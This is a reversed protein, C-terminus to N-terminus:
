DRPQPNRGPAESLSRTSLVWFVGTGVAVIVAVVLIAVMIPSDPLVLWLVLAIVPLALMVLWMRLVPLRSTGRPIGYDDRLAM